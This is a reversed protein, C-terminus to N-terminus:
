ARTAASGCSGPSLPPGARPPSGYAPLTQVLAAVGLMAVAFQLFVADYSGTADHARGLLIPGVAGACGLATFMLGLLTSLSRLGFYRALLYPIVDIEGGTGFGVLVAALVGTAFRDSAALTVAGTAAILLLASAVLPARFRDLLWGTVLRGALGAGGMASVALAARSEPVGRDTLLAFLHVIAGQGAITGGFVVAALIWFVRSRVAEPVSRGPTRDSADSTSSARERVFRLVIPLGLAVLMVGQAVFAGRWGLLRILAQAALPHAIGGAAGGAMVLSLALGRRRDFWSSVARSYALASSGAAAVGLLAFVAYLHALRPTLMSLSALALGSLALCPVVVRRPGARDLLLGVLPASVAATAALMGYASSVAQRSWAFEESLPKLFVAFTYFVLSSLMVAVGSAAAVRWGEYAPRDEDV